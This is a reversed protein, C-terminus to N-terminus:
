ISSVAFSANLSGIALCSDGKYQYAPAPHNSTCATPISTPPLNECITLVYSHSSTTFNAGGESALTFLDYSECQSPSTTSPFSFSCSSAESPHFAALFCCFCLLALQAMKARRTM